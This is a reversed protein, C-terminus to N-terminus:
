RKVNFLKKNADFQNWKGISSAEMKTSTDEGLWESAEQLKRGTLHEINKRQVVSDTELDNTEKASIDMKSVVLSIIEEQKIMITSGASVETDERNRGTKIIFFFFSPLQYKCSVSLTFVSQYCNLHSIVHAGDSRRALRLVIDFSMGELPVGTHFVGLFKRGDRLEVEVESAILSCMFFLFKNRHTAEKDTDGQGKSKQKFQSDFSRISSSSSSSASQSNGKSISNTGHSKQEGKGGKWHGRRQTTTMAIRILGEVGFKYGQVAQGPESVM